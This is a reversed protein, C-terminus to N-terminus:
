FKLPRNNETYFEGICYKTGELSDAIESTTFIIQHPIDFSESLTVIQEQFNQTREKQMGKDEMNDCYVFKPYRMFGLKLSAFFTAYRISNKLYVKSSESFNNKEDLAFSNREIDVTIEKGQKFETQRDLDNKLLILTYKEILNSVIKLRQSQSDQKQKIKNRLNIIKFKIEEESKILIQYNTALVLHKSLFEISKETKGKEVLLDDIVKNRTLAFAGFNLYKDLFFKKLISMM